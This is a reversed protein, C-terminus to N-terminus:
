HVVGTTSNQFGPHPQQLLDALKAQVLTAAEQALAKNEPTSEPHVILMTSSSSSGVSLKSVTFTTKNSSLNEIEDRKEIEAKRKKASESDTYAGLETVKRPAILGSPFPAKTKVTPAIGHSGAGHSSKNTFSNVTETKKEALNITPAPASTSPTPIPSSAPANTTTSDGNWTARALLLAQRYVRTEDDITKKLTKLDNANLIQYEHGKTLDTVEVLYVMEASAIGACAVLACTAVRKLYRNM